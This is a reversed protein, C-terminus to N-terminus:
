PQPIELDKCIKKALADVIGSHRAITSTKMNLPNYFVTHKGGERYFKCGHKELHNLLKRRKM